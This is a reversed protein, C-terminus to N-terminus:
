TTRRRSSCPIANSFFGPFGNDFDRVIGAKRRWRVEDGREPSRHGISGFAAVAYRGLLEERKEGNSTHNNTM